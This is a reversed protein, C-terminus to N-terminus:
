FLKFLSLLMSRVDSIALLYLGLVSLVTAKPYKLITFVPDLTKVRADTNEKLYEMEDVVEDIRKHLRKFSEASNDQINALKDLSKAMSIISETMNDQNNAVREMVTEIRVLQKDHSLVREELGKHEM